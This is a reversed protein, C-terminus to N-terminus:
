NDPNWRTEMEPVPTNVGGSATENAPPSGFVPRNAGDHEVILRVVGELFDKKSV